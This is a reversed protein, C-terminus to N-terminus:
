RSTDVEGDPKGLPVQATEPVPAQSLSPDNARRGSADPADDPSGEANESDGVDVPQNAAPPDTESRKPEPDTV